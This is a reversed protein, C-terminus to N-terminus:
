GAKSCGPGPAPISLVQRNRLCGQRLSTAVEDGPDERKKRVM